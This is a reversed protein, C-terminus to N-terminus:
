DHISDRTVGHHQGWDDTMESRVAWLEPFMQHKLGRELLEIPRGKLSKASIGISRHILQIHHYRFHQFKEDFDLLAEAIMYCEDHTYHTDYIDRISQNRDTLYYQKFTDWLPKELKLLVTFGPSEQGSGNGLELRIEQYDKISMTELVSLQQTMLDLLQHVRKFLTLARCHAGETMADLSEALSVAILKMWLEEVQHVIQFQIEDRNVASAFPKQCALLENTKLYIEYDKLDAKNTDFLPEILHYFNSM